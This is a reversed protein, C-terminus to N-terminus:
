SGLSDRHQKGEETPVATHFTISYNHGKRGVADADPVINHQFKAPKDRKILNKDLLSHFAKVKRAGDGRSGESVQIVREEHKGGWVGHSSRLLEEETSNLKHRGSGPGGKLIKAFDNMAIIVLNFLSVLMLILM